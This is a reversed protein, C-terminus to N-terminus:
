GIKQNCMMTTPMVKVSLLKRSMSQRAFVYSSSRCPERPSPIQSWRWTVWNLRRKPM